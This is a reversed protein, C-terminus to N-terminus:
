NGDNEVQMEGQRELFLKQRAVIDTHEDVQSTVLDEKTGPM